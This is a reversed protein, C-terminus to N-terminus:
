CVYLQDHVLIGKVVGVYMEAPLLSDLPLDFSLLEVNLLPVCVILISSRKIIRTFVLLARRLGILPEASGLRLSQLALAIEPLLFIREM